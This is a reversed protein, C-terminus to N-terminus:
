GGFSSCEELSELASGPGPYWPDGTQPLLLSWGTDRALVGGGEDSRSCLLCNFAFACSSPRWPTM